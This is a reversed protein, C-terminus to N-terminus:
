RDGNLGNLEEAESLETFLEGRKLDSFFTDKASRNRGSSSSEFADTQQKNQKAKKHWEGEEEVLARSRNLEESAEVLYGLNTEWNVM